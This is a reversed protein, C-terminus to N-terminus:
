TVGRLIPLTMIPFSQDEGILQGYNTGHGNWGIWTALPGPPMDVEAFRKPADENRADTVLIPGDPVAQLPTLLQLAHLM